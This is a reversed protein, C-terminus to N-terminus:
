KNANIEKILGEKSYVKPMFTKGTDFLYIVYCDCQKENLYKLNKTLNQYYHYKYYQDLFSKPKVQIIFEKNNKTAFLDIAYHYDYDEIAHEINAYEHLTLFTIARDIRNVFGEWSKVFILDFLYNYIDLSTINSFNFGVDNYIKLSLKELKEYSLINSTYYKCYEEFSTFRNEAFIKSISGIIKPSNYQTISYKTRGNIIDNLTKSNNSM